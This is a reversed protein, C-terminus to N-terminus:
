NKEEYTKVIATIPGCDLRVTDHYVYVEVSGSMLKLATKTIDPFLHVDFLAGDCPDGLKVCTDVTLDHGKLVMGAPGSHLTVSFDDICGGAFHLAEFLDQADITFRYQAHDKNPTLRRWSDQLPTGLDGVYPKETKAVYLGPTKDPTGKHILLVSGDTAVTEHETVLVLDKFSVPPTHANAITKAAKFPNDQLKCTPIRPLRQPKPTTGKFVSLKPQPLTNGETDRYIPDYTTTHELTPPNLRKSWYWLAATIEHEILQAQEEAYASEAAALREHLEPPVNGNSSGHTYSHRRVNWQANHLLIAAPGNAKPEPAYKPDPLQKKILPPLLQVLPDTALQDLNRTSLLELARELGKRTTTNM